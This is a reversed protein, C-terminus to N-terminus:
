RVLDFIMRLIRFGDQYTKLKSTSGEPRSRYVTDVEQIPMRLTLAHVTMETEIEFGRSFIPFSKVFRQSFVRYGSLMDRFRDGFLWAVAGTLLSNGLRHGPRYAEIDDDVRCGVVMDLGGRLLLDVMLPAAAPEYTDDGDVLVYADADIDGFMRRVVNGKGQLPEVRVLAGAEAAARATADSSNNDYVWIDAGPLATRFATVVRGITVEENYCPILVAIRPGLRGAADERPASRTRVDM